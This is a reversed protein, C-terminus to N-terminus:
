LSPSLGADLGGLGCGPCVGAGSGAGGIANCGSNLFALEGNSLTSQEFPTETIAVTSTNTPHSHTAWARLGPRLAGFSLPTTSPSPCTTANTAATAVLKIVVSRPNVEAATLPNSFLARPGFVIPWSHLSNPSVNCSCCVAQQEDPVYGYVNVCLNGVGTSTNFPNDGLSAGTNTVNVVGDGLNLNSAYNVMFADPVNSNIIGPPPPAQASMMLPLALTALTAFSKLKM